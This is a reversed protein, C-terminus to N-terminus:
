KGLRNRIDAIQADLDQNKRKIRMNEQHSPGDYTDFKANQVVDAKKQPAASSNIVGKPVDAVMKPKEIIRDDTMLRRTEKSQQGAYEIPSEAPKANSSPKIAGEKLDKLRQANARVDKMGAERTDMYQKPNKNFEALKKSDAYLEKRIDAGVNNLTPSPMNEKLKDVGKTTAKGAAWRGARKAMGAAPGGFLLSGTDEITYDEEIGPEEVYKEGTAEEHKRINEEANKKIQDEKELDKGQMTALLSKLDM